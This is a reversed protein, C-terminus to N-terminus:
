KIETLCSMRFIETGTFVSISRVRTRVSAPVKVTTPETLPAPGCRMDWMLHMSILLVDGGSMQIRQCRTDGSRKDQKQMLWIRDTVEQQPEKESLGYSWDPVPPTWTESIIRTVMVWETPTSFSGTTILDRLGSSLRMKETMTLM